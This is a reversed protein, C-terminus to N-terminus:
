SNSGPSNRTLEFSSVGATADVDYRDHAGDWGAPAYVSNGAVGTHRDGDLVVSGAGGLAQVRVPVGDPARVVFESAGGSMRIPVSGDPRPLTLEIRHSGASFDVASLRGGGLDVVTADAGGSFTLHWAVDQNLVIELAKPGTGGNHAAGSGNYDFPGTPRGDGDAANLSVNLDDDVAPVIGSDKPTSIRLLRDGLQDTRVRIAPVGSVVALEASDRHGRDRVVLHADDHHPWIGCGGALLPLTFMAILTRRM